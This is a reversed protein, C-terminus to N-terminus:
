QHMEGEVAVEGIMAVHAWSRGLSELDNMEDAAALMGAVAGLSSLPLVHQPLDSEL